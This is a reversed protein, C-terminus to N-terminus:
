DRPSPSTYLLCTIYVTLLEYLRKAREQEYSDNYMFETEVRLWKDFSETDLHTSVKAARGKLSTQLEETKNWQFDFIHLDHYLDTEMSQFEKRTIGSTGIIFLPNSYKSNSKIWEYVTRTIYQNGGGPKALNIEPINLEKALIYSAKLESALAKPDTLINSGALYSCGVAVVCDYPKKM